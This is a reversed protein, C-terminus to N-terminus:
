KKYDFRRTQPWGRLVFAVGLVAALLAFMLAVDVASPSDTAMGYVLSFGTGTTGLLLIALMTDAPTPGRVVRILGLAATALLLAALYLFMSNM